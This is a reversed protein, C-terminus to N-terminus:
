DNDNIGKYQCDSLVKEAASKASFLDLPNFEVNSRYVSEFRDKIEDDRVAAMGPRLMRFYRVYKNRFVDFYSLRITHYFDAASSNADVEGAVALFYKKYEVEKEFKGELKIILGNENGTYIMNPFDYYQYVLFDKQCIGDDYGVQAHLYSNIMVSPEIMLGGYNKISVIEKEGELQRTIVPNPIAKSEQIETQIDTLHLGAWSVILGMLALLSAAVTEFFIKNEKLFKRVKKM